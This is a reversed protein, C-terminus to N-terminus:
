LAGGPFDGICGGKLLEPSYFGQVRFGRLTEVM